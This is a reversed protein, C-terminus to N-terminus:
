ICVFMMEVDDIEERVNGVGIVSVFVVVVTNELWNWCGDIEEGVNDVDCVSVVIVRVDNNV